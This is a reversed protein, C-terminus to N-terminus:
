LQLSINIAEKVYKMTETNLLGIKRGLRAKSISRIQEGIITGSISDETNYFSTSNLEVHTPQKKDRHSIPLIITTPSKENGLENQIILCPRIKNLESGVNYGLNVTWIEGRMPQVKVKYYKEKIDLDIVTKIWMKLMRFKLSVSDDINNIYYDKHYVKDLAYSM